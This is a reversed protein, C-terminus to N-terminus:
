VGCYLTGGFIALAPVQMNEPAGFGDENVQVWNPTPEASVDAPRVAGIGVAIMLIM